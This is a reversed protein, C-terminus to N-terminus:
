NGAQVTQVQAQTLVRDYIRLDDVKGSWPSEVGNFESGIRLEATNTGRTPAGSGFTQTLTTTAGNKYFIPAAGANYTVAFHTWTNVALNFNTTEWVYWTGAVNFSFRMEDSNLARDVEFEGRNSQANDRKSLLNRAPSTGGSTTTTIWATITIPGTAPAINGMGVYDDVGDFTLAGGLQGAVWPSAPFNVLTGNRANGSWDSATTGSVENM